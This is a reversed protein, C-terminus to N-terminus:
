KQVKARRKRAIQQDHWICQEVGHFPLYITKQTGHEDADLVIRTASDDSQGKASGRRRRVYLGAMRVLGPPYTALQTAYSVPHPRDVGFSVLDGSSAFTSPPARTSM